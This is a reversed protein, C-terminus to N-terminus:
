MTHVPPFRSYMTAVMLMLQLELPTGVIMVNAGILFGTEKDTLVGSLKVPIGSFSASYFSTHM